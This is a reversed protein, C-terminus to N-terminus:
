VPQSEIVAPQVDVPAPEAPAPEVPAPAPEFQKAIVAPQAAAVPQLNAPDIFVVNNDPTLIVGGVSVAFLENDGSELVASCVIKM